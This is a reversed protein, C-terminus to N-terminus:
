GEAGAGATVDEYHLTIGVLAPAHHRLERVPAIGREGGGGAFLRQLERGAGAKRQAEDGDAKGAHRADVQQSLRTREGVGPGDDHDGVVAVARLDHFCDLRAGVIENAAGVGGLVHLVGDLRHGVLRAALARRGGGVITVAELALQAQERARLHALDLGHDLLGRAGVDGHEHAPLRAHALLDHRAGDVGVRGPAAVGEHLDVARRHRTIQQFGLEEAVLAAGERARVLALGAAELEGVAAGDEQVLDALQMRRQLGLQQV